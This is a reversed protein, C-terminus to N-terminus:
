LHYIKAVSERRESITPLSTKVPGVHTQNKTLAGFLLALDAANSYATNATGLGLASVYAVLIALRVIKRKTAASM